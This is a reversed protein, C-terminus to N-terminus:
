GLRMIQLYKALAAAKLSGGPIPEPVLIAYARSLEKRAYEYTIGMQASIEKTTRGEATLMLINRQRASLAFYKGIDDGSDQMHEAAVESWNGKGSTALQIARVYDGIEMSASKDFFSWGSRIKEPVRQILNTVPFQSYIVIGINENFQRMLLGLEVGNIGDPSLNFDILAADAKRIVEPNVADDAGGASYLLQLQPAKGLEASLMKRLVPDNEVYILGLTRV